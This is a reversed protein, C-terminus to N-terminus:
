SCFWRPGLWSASAWTPSDNVSTYALAAPTGEPRKKSTLYSTGIFRINKSASASSREAPVADAVVSFHVAPHSLKLSGSSKVCLLIVQDTDAVVCLNVAVKLSTCA